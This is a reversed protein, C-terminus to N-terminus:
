DFIVGKRILFCGYPRAENTQIVGFAARAAEYFAFREIGILPVDRGEARRAAERLEAHVDLVADPEGVVQMRRLPDDVFTDIPLLSFIAEAAATCDVGDMRELRGSVTAAAVSEAPFNRDVLALDDGHGMRALLHLAGPSLLPSVGKLM